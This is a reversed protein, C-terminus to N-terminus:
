AKNDHLTWLLKKSSLGKNMVAVWANYYQNAMDSMFYQSEINGRRKKIESLFIVKQLSTRMIQSAFRWLFEKVLSMPLM